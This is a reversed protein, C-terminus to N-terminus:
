SEATLRYNKWWPTIAAAGSTGLFVVANTVPGTSTASSWSTFDTSTFIKTTGAPSALYMYTGNGYAAGDAADGANAGPVANVVTWTSGDTSQILKPTHPTAAYSYDYSVGFFKTGDHATSRIWVGAPTANDNRSWTAGQDTSITAASKDNVGVAFHLYINSNVYLMSVVAIDNRVGGGFLGAHSFTWNVGDTSTGFYDSGGGATAIYKAGTWVLRADITASGAGATDTHAWTTGTTSTWVCPTYGAGYTGLAVFQTGNWVIDGFIADGAASFALSQTWTTGDTSKYIGKNQIGLITITGTGDIGMAFAINGGTGAPTIGNWTLADASSYAVPNSGGGLSRNYFKGAM